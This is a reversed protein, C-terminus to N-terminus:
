ASVAVVVRRAENQAVMQRENSVAGALAPQQLGLGLSDDFTWQLLQRKRASGDFPYAHRATEILGSMTEGGVRADVWPEPVRLEASVGIAKGHWVGRASLDKRRRRGIQCQTRENWEHSTANRGHHRTRAMKTRM